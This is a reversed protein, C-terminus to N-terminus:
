PSAVAKRIAEDLPDVAGPASAPTNTITQGKTTPRPTFHHPSTPVTTKAHATVTAAVVVAAAPAAAAPMPLPGPVPVPSPIPAPPLALPAAAVVNAASVTAPARRALTRGLTVGGGIAISLGLLSALAPVAVRRRTKTQPALTVSAAPISATTPRMTLKSVSSPMAPRYVPPLPAPTPAEKPMTLALKALDKLEQRTSERATMTDRKRASNEERNPTAAAREADGYMETTLRGPIYTNSL